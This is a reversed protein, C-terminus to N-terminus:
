RFVTVHGSVEKYKGRYDRYSILYVYVGASVPDGNFTGDWSKDMNTSEFLLNGWRNFIKLNFDNIGMGRIIFFENLGDGNPTFANPVFLRTTTDVQPPPLTDCPIVVVNITDSMTDCPASRTVWFNGSTNFTRTLASSGDFWTIIQNPVIPLQITVDEDSCITHSQSVSTFVQGTEIIIITDTLTDCPTTRTLWYNGASSFTRTVANSGDFWLVQQNAVQPIQVTYSSGPCISYTNSISTLNQNNLSITITDTKVCGLSDMTVFYQGASTALLSDAVVGTSWTYTKVANYHQDKLWISIPNCVTTDPGLEVRCDQPSIVVFESKHMSIPFTAVGGAVSSPTIASWTNDDNGDRQFVQTSTTYNPIHLNFSKNNYNETALFVGFYNAINQGAPLGSLSNPASNVEYIQVGETNSPYGSVTIPLTGFLTQSFGGAPAPYAYYSNDGISAGSFPHAPNGNLTGVYANPSADVIQNNAVVDFDFYGLLQSAAPNTKRCVLNRVETTTLAKNWITFDDIEGTFYQWGIDSWARAITGTGSIPQFLSGGTGNSYISVAIGNIYIIKSNNNSFVITVQIWDFGAQANSTYTSRRGAASFSTGDGSRGEVRGSSVVLSAIGAYGGSTYSSSFIMGSNISKRNMWYSITVPYTLNNFATGLEVYKNPNFDLSKGSGQASLHFSFGSLIAM